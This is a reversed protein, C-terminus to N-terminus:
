AWPLEPLRLWPLTVRDDTADGALRAAVAPAACAVPRHPTVVVALEPVRLGVALVRERMRDPAALPATALTPVTAHTWLVVPGEAWLQVPVDQARRVAASRIRARSGAELAPSPNWPLALAGRPVVVTWGVSRRDQGVWDLVAVGDTRAAADTVPRHAVWSRLAAAMAEPTAPVRADGMDEALDSLRVRLFHEGEEVVVVAGGTARDQVAVRLEGTTLRPLVADAARRLQGVDIRTPRHRQFLTAGTRGFPADTV